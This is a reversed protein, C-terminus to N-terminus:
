ASAEEPHDTTVPQEPPRIPRLQADKIAVEGYFGKIVGGETVMVPWACKCMWCLCGDFQTWHESVRIIKVVLGVHDKGAVKVAMDDVKCNSM